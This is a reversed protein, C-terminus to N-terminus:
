LFTNLCKLTKEVRHPISRLVIVMKSSNQPKNVRKKRKLKERRSTYIKVQERESERTRYKFPSINNVTFAAIAGTHYTRCSRLLRKKLFVSPKWEPSFARFDSIEFGDTARHIPTVRKPTLLCQVIIEDLPGFSINYLQKWGNSTIKWQKDVFYYKTVNKLTVCLANTM